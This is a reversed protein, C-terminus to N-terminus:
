PRTLDGNWTEHSTAKNQSTKPNFVDELTARKFETTSPADEFKLVALTPSNKYPHDLELAIQVCFM